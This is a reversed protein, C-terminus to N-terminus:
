PPTADIADLMTAEVEEIAAVDEDSLKTGMEEYWGMFTHGAWEPDAPASAFEAYGVEQSAVESGGNSNFSVTYRSPIWKSYLTLDETVPQTFDYPQTLAEDIFWGGFASGAIDDLEVTAVTDGEQVVDVILESGRDIFVVFYEEFDWHAYLTTNGEVPASFDYPVRAKKGVVWVSRALEPDGEIEAVEEDTLEGALEIYWDDFSGYERTPDKPRAAASGEEVRQTEPLGAAEGSEDM